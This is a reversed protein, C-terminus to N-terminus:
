GTRASAIGDVVLNHGSIHAAEDSALFLIAHAVDLPRGPGRLRPVPSAAADPGPAPGSPEHAPVYEPELRATNAGLDTAIGGPSVANVRIGHDAYEVAMQRTLGIIGAKAAAYAAWGPWGYMGQLSAVNVVAGGGRRILHPLATRCTRYVSALNVDLTRQWRAPETDVVSGPIAVGANNVLVDLGGWREVAAAVMRAVDADQSVDAPLFVAQGGGSGIRRAAEPGAQADRDALVVAAGERAFLEVTARGIGHAAGTVIAVKGSLRM